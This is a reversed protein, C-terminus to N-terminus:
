NYITSKTYTVYSLGVCSVLDDTYLCQNPMLLKLWPYTVLLGTSAQLRTSIMYDAWWLLRVKCQVTEYNYAARTRACVCVCVCFKVASETLTPIDIVTM